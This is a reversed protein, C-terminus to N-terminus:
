TDFLGSGTKSRPLDSKSVARKFLGGPSSSSSVNGASRVASLKPSKPPQNLSSAAAAANHGMSRARWFKSIDTVIGSKLNTEPPPAHKLQLFLANMHTKLSARLSKPRGFDSELETPNPKRRFCSTRVDM